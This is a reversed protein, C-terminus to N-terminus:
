AEVFLHQREVLDAQKGPFLRSSARIPHLAAGGSSDGTPNCALIVHTAPWATIEGPIGAHNVHTVRHGAISM